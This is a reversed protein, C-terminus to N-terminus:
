PLDYGGDFVDDEEVKAEENNRAINDTIDTGKAKNYVEAMEPSIDILDMSHDNFIKNLALISEVSSVVMDINDTKFASLVNYLVTDKNAPNDAVINNLDSAFASLNTDKRNRIESNELFPPIRYLVENNEGRVRIAVNPHSTLAIWDTVSFADGRNALLPLVRQKFEAYSVDVDTDIKRLEVALSRTEEVIARRLLDSM